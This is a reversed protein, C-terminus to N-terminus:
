CPLKEELNKILIETDRIFQPILVILKRSKELNYEYATNNRKEYYDRWNEWNEVFKYGQMFRFVNNVSLEEEAKGYVKKLVRKMIKRALELTYEFRKICSDELMDVFDCAKNEELTKMSSKLTELASKLNSIDIQMYFISVRKTGISLLKLSM